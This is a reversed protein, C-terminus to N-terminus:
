NQKAECSELKTGRYYHALIEAYNKGAVAMAEAGYQSMGVRHGYGKTVVTIMEGEVQVTFATSRLELLKRLETGTFDKGGIRMTNIGGGATFTTFGIWADPDDGLTIGLASSFADKTFTYTDTYHAANEEGPSDTARLYPFDAGWVAVADETRGGSCSFYTAEILEGQYTLVLGATACVAEEAATVAVEQGGGARYDAPDIYSQCCASDTCVSGDGHKGGTVAAKWAYTRAVVAQAKKAEMEFSAPLEALLVGVLYAELDQEEVTEGRRLLIRRQSDSGDAGIKEVSVKEEQAITAITPPSADWQMTLRLVLSPLLLGLAAALLVERYIPKM